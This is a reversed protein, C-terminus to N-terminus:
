QTVPSNRKGKRDMRETPIEGKADLRSDTGGELLLSLVLSLVGGRKRDGRAGRDKDLVSASSLTESAWDLLLIGDRSRAPTTERFCPNIRSEGVMKEFPSRSCVTCVSMYM